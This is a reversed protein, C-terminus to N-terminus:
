MMGKTTEESLISSPINLVTMTPTDRKTVDEDDVYGTDCIAVTTKDEVEVHKRVM